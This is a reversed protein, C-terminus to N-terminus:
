KVKVLSIQYRGLSMVYLGYENETIKSLGQDLVERYPFKGIIEELSGTYRVTEDGHFPSHVVISYTKGHLRSMYEIMADSVRM